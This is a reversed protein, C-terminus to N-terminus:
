SPFFRLAERIQEDRLRALEDETYFEDMYPRSLLEMSMSAVEAFELGTHHYSTLPLERALFYHFSHGGEHLM